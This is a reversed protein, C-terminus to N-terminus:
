FNFSIYGAGIASKGVCKIFSANSVSTASSLFFFSRLTEMSILALRHQLRDINQGDWVSNENQQQNGGWVTKGLLM